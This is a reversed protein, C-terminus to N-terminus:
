LASRIRRVPPRHQPAAGEAVSGDLEDGDSGSTSPRADPIRFDGPTVSMEVTATEGESGTPVLALSGIRCPGPEARVPMWGADTV